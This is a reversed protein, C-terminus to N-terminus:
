LLTIDSTGKWNLNLYVGHLPFVSKDDDLLNIDDLQMPNIQKAQLLGIVLMRPLVTSALYDPNLNLQNALYRATSLKNQNLIMQLTARMTNVTLVRSRTVSLLIKEYNGYTNCRDILSYVTKNNSNQKNEIISPSRGSLKQLTRTLASPSYTDVPCRSPNSLIEERSFDKYGLELLVSLENLTLQMALLQNLFNSLTM